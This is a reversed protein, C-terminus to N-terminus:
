GADMDFPCRRKKVNELHHRRCFVSFAVSGRGCAGARCPNAAATREAGLAEHFRRHHALLDEALMREKVERAQPSLPPRASPQWPELELENLRGAAIL